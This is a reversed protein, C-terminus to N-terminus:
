KIQDKEFRVQINNTDIYHVTIYINNNKYLLIEKLAKSSEGWVEREM